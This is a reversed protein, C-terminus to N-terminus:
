KENIIENTIANISIEKYFDVGYVLKVIDQKDKDNERLIYRLDFDYNNLLAEYAEEETIINDKDPFKDIDDWDYDFTVIDGTEPDVCISFGNEAFYVDNEKRGFTFEHIGNDLVRDFEEIYSVKEFKNPHVKKIFDKALKLMDKKNYKQERKTEYKRKSFSKVEKTKLDIRADIHDLVYDNKNEENKFRLQLAHNSANHEQYLLYVGYIRYNKDINLFERAIEEAEKESIMSYKEKQTSPEKYSYAKGISFSRNTDETYYDLTEKTKADIM